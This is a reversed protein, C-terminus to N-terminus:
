ALRPLPLAVAVAGERREHVLAVRAPECRLQGVRPHHGLALSQRSVHLLQVLLRTVGWVGWGECACVEVCGVGV